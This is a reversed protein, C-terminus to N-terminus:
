RARREKRSLPLLITFTSGLGRESEVTITGGHAEIIERAVWLGLGFGGFHEQPVAREFRRFIREQVETSIGIGHDTIVLRAQDAQVNLDITIPKGQGYQIANSVLNFMASELALHDWKGIVPSGSRVDLSSGSRALQERTGALVTEVVDRLESTEQSLVMRGASVQTVALFNNILATLRTVLFSARLLKAGVKEVPVPADREELLQRASAVQLSLSTLPTKLEHSAIALFEDRARLAERLHAESVRLASEAQRLAAREKCERLAREVAPVLRKLRDKLLYDHAGARMAEVATDEGITGSVIIFPVDLQKEKLIGLAAPATFKPMSWDATVLDWTQRALAGRMEEPTEVRQSEVVLGARRLEDAILKADTTSDEVILVRLLRSV